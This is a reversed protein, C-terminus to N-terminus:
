LRGPMCSYRRGAVHSQCDGDKKTASLRLRHLWVGTIIREAERIRTRIAPSLGPEGAPTFPYSLLQDLRLTILELAKGQFYINRLSGRYPCNQIQDLVVKM